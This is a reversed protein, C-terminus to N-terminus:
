EPHTFPAVRANLWVLGAWALLGVAVAAAVTSWVARAAPGARHHLFSDTLRWTGLTLAPLGFLLMPLEVYLLTLDREGEFAGRLGPGAGHRWVGFGVAAALVALLCGVAGPPVM